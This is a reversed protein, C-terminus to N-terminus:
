LRGQLYEDNLVAGLNIYTVAFRCVCQGYDHALKEYFKWIKGTKPVQFTHGVLPLAPPGPIRPARSGFQRNIWYILLVPVMCGASALLTSNMERQQLPTFSNETLPFNPYLIPINIPENLLQEDM